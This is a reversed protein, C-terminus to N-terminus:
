AKVPRNARKHFLRWGALFLLVGIALAVLVPLAIDMTYNLVYYDPPTKAKVIKKPQEPAETPASSQPQTEAALGEAKVQVVALGLKSPDIAERLARAFPEAATPPRPGVDSGRRM